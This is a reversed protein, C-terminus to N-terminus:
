ALIDALRDAWGPAKQPTARRKSAAVRPRAAKAAPRRAGDKAVTKKPDSARPRTASGRKGKEISPRRKQTEAEASIGPRRCRECRRVLGVKARLGSRVTMLEFPRDCTSCRTALIVLEAMAGSRLRYPKFGIVRYDQGEGAGRRYVHGIQGAANEKSM